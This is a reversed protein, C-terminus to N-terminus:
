DLQLMRFLNPTYSSRNLSEATNRVCASISIAIQDTISCASFPLDLRSLLGLCKSLRVAEKHSITVCGGDSAISALVSNRTWPGGEKCVSSVSRGSACGTLSTTSSSDLTSADSAVFLSPHTTRVSHTGIQGSSKTSTESHAQSCTTVPRHRAKRRTLTAARPAACV